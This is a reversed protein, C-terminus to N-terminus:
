RPFKKAYAEAVEDQVIASWEEMPVDIEPVSGAIEDLSPYAKRLKVEGHEVYIQIKDFPKLGLTDRVEKPITVQGKRTLSTTQRM